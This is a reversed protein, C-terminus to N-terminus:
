RADLQRGPIERCLVAVIRRPDAAGRNGIRHSRGYGASRQAMVPMESLMPICGGIVSWGNWNNLLALLLGVALACRMVRAYLDNWGGTEHELSAKIQDLEREAYEPGGIM